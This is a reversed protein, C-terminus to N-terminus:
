VFSTKSSSVQSKTHFNMSIMRFYKAFFHKCFCKVFFNNTGQTPPLNKKDSLSTFILNITLDLLGWSYINDLWSQPYHKRCGSSGHFCRGTHNGPVRCRHPQCDVQIWRSSRGQLGVLKRCLHM